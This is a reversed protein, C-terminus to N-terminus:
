LSYDTLLFKVESNSLMYKIRNPPYTSDIPIYAGGAKYIALIAILFNIDRDKFIGVFEGKCVGLKRLLEALQNAQHNLEQYTLQTQQHIVAINNPTQSVQTEFLQNITQTVPYQKTQNNFEMLIQHRDFDKLLVIESIKTNVENICSELINIYYRSMFKISEDQFLHEKYEIDASLSGCDVKFFITIDNNLQNLISKNHINELCVVIDFFPHRNPNKSINLLQILEDFNCNQNNYANIISDKVQFLFDKFSLHPKIQTHLPIVKNNVENLFIKDYIPIGIIIDNNRTYKQLLINLASVLIWYMSFYSGQALKIISQSSDNSLDFSISKNRGSYFLPRVYDLMLNTEPLEGSLKNIWYIKQSLLDNSKLHTNM